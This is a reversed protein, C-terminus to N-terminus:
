QAIISASSCLGRKRRETLKRRTFATAFVQSLQQLFDVVNSLFLIVVHVNESQKETNQDVLRCHNSTEVLRCLNTRLVVIARAQHTHRRYM